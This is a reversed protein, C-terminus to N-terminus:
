QNMSADNKYRKIADVTFPETALLFTRGPLYNIKTTDNAKFTFNKLVNVMVLHLEEKAFRIGICNRNGAGFSLFTNPNLLQKNEPLFREPRFEYPEPYYEENYHIAPVPVQIVMGKPIELGTPEHCWNENCVRELRIAPPFMRLTEQICAAM